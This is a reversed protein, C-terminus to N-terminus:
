AYSILQHSSNLRTSKRDGLLGCDALFKKEKSFKKVKFDLEDERLPFEFTDDVGLHSFKERMFPPSLSLLIDTAPSKSIIKKILRPSSIDKLDSDLILFDFEAEKLKKLSESASSAQVIETSINNLNAQVKSQFDPHDSVVLIKGLPESM